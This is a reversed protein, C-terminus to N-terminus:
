FQLVFDFQLKDESFFLNKEVLWGDHNYDSSGFIMELEKPLKLEIRRNEKLM